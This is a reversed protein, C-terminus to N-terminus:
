SLAITIVTIGIVIFPMLTFLIYKIYYVDELNYSNTSFACYLGFYDEQSTILGEFISVLTRLNNPWNLLISFVLSLIQLYTILIRFIGIRESFNPDRGNLEIQPRLMYALVCCILLVRFVLGAYAGGYNKCDYCALGGSRKGYGVICEACLNGRYESQCPVPLVGGPCAGGWPCVFWLDSTQNLM